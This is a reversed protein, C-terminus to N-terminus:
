QKTGTRVPPHICSSMISNSKGMQNVCLNFSADCRMRCFYANAIPNQANTPVTVLMLALLLIM